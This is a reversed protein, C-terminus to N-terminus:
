AAVAQWSKLGSPVQSSQVFRELDLKGKQTQSGHCPFCHIKLIPRIDREFDEDAFLAEAALLLISLALPGSLVTRNLRLRLDGM